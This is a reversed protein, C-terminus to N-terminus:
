WHCGVRRLLWVCDDLCCRRGHALGQLLASGPHPGHGFPDRAVAIARDLALGHLPIRISSLEVSLLLKRRSTVLASAHEHGFPDRAVAIARDLLLGHLPIRISSLEVSLLLKRRCTVLASAHGHGFPDRAVALDLALGRLPIRIPSLDVSILVKGIAMKVTLSTARCLADLYSVMGLHLWWILADRPSVKLLCGIDFLLM